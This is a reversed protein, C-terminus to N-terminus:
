LGLNGANTKGKKLIAVGFFVPMALQCILCVRYLFGVIGKDAGGAQSIVTRVKANSYYALSV